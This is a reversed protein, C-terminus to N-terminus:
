GNDSAGGTRQGTVIELFYRENNYRAVKTIPYTLRNHSVFLISWKDPPYEDLDRRWSILFVKAKVTHLGGAIIKVGDVNRDQVNAKVEMLDQYDYGDFGGAGDAVAVQEQIIVNQNLQGIDKQSRPRVPILATM